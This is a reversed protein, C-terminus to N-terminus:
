IRIYPSLTSFSPDDPVKPISKSGFFRTHGQQYRANDMFIHIPLGASRKGVKELMAVVTQVTIHTTHYLTTREHNTANLAVIVNPRFRGPATYVIIREFCGFLVMHNKASFFTLIYQIIALFDRCKTTLVALGDLCRSGDKYRNLPTLDCRKWVDRIALSYAM